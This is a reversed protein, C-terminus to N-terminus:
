LSFFVCRFDPYLIWLLKLADHIGLPFDDVVLQLLDMLRSRIDDERLKRDSIEGRLVESISVNEAGSSHGLLIDFSHLLGSTCDDLCRYCVESLLAQTKTPDEFLSSNTLFSIVNKSTTGLTFGCGNQKPSAGLLKQLLRLSTEIVGNHNHPSDHLVVLDNSASTCHLHLKGFQESVLASLNFSLLM